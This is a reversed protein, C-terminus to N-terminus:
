GEMACFARLIDLGVKGSKETFVKSLNKIEIM